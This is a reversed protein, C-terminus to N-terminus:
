ISALQLVEERTPLPDDPTRACWLSGATCAFRLQEEASRDKLPSHDAHILAASFAAGAGQVQRVTVSNAPASIRTGSRGRAVAGLRGATVIVTDAVDLETLADLTRNAADPDDESANTQLFSLRRQRTAATLWAPPPSGGLNLFVQSEAALAAQLLPRPAAALVEYGDLYVVPCAALPQIDLGGLEDPIGALDSYWTRHGAKDCVVLNTRTHATPKDNPALRVNWQHLREQIANGAHDDAVPNTALLVPHGFAHLFAAVLPGDGALFHETSLIDTGYDIRPYAEVNLTHTAALYSFCSVAPLATM